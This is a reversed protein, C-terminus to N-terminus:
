HVEYKDIRISKKRRGRERMRSWMSHVSRVGRGDIDRECVCVCEREITNATYSALTAVITSYM